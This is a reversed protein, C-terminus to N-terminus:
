AARCVPSFPHTRFGLSQQLKAPLREVREPQVFGLLCKALRLVQRDGALVPAEVRTGETPQLVRETKAPPHVLGPVLHAVGGDRCHLAAFVARGREHQLAKEELEHRRLVLLQGLEDDVPDIAHLLIREVEVERARGPLHRHDERHEAIALRRALEQLLRQRHELALEAGRMRFDPQHHVVQGIREAGDGRVLVVGRHLRHQPARERDLLGRQRRTMRLADHREEIGAHEKGTGLLVVFGLPQQEGRLADREVEFTGAAARRRDHARREVPQFLRGEFRLRFAIQELAQMRGVDREALEGHAEDMKAAMVERAAPQRFGLRVVPPQHLKRRRQRLHLARQDAGLAAHRSLDVAQHGFALRRQRLLQEEGLELHHLLHEARLMVLRERLAVEEAVEIAHEAALVIRELYELAKRIRPPAERRGIGTAGVSQHTQHIGLQFDAVLLGGLARCRLDLVEGPLFRHHVGRQVFERPLQARDPM